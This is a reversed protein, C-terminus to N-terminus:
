QHVNLFAMLTFDSQKYWETLRKWYITDESKNHLTYLTFLASYVKPLIFPHLVAACSVVDSEDDESLSIEKGYEPLAPFLIRVIDYVRVIISHLENVAHTLLLPHVILGGYTATYAETM